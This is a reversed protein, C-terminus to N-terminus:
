KVERFTMKYHSETHIMYPQRNRIEVRVEGYGTGDVVARLQAALQVVGQEGMMRVLSRLAERCLEM